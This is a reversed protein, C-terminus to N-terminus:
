TEPLSMEFKKIVNKSLVKGLLSMRTFIHGYYLESFIFWFMGWRFSTDVQENYAGTESEKIVTGFWGFLMVLLVILGFFMLYKGWAAGNLLNSVGVMLSTVAISGTIPWHSGHPVYYNSEAHAM